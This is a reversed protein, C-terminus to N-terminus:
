AGVVVSRSQNGHTLGLNIGTLDMATSAPAGPPPGPPPGPPAAGPRAGPRAAGVRVGLVRWVGCMVGAGPPADPSAAGPAGAAISDIPVISFLICGWKVPPSPSGTTPGSPAGPPADAEL